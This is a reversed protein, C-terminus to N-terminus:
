LFQKKALFIVAGTTHIRYLTKPNKVSSIDFKEGKDKAM